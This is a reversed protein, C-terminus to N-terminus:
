EFMSTSSVTVQVSSLTALDSDNVRLDMGSHCVCFPLIYGTFIKWRMKRLYGIHIFRNLAGFLFDVNAFGDFHPPNSFITENVYIPRVLVIAYAIHYDMEYPSSYTVHTMGMSYPVHLEMSWKTHTDHRASM